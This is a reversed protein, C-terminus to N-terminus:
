ERRAIIIIEPSADTLRSRDWDGYQTEIVLGGEKLLADLSPQDLFRLTSRSVRPEAWADCQFTHTFSLTRGDFPATIKRSMRM